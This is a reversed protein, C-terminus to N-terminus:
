TPSSNKEISVAREEVDPNATGSALKDTGAAPKDAGSPQQANARSNSALLAFVAVFIIRWLKQEM